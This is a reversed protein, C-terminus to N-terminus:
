NVIHALENRLFAYAFFPEDHSFSIDIPHEKKNSTIIKPIGLQDKIINLKTTKSLPPIAQTLKDRLSVM